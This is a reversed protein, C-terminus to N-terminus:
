KDIYSYKKLITSIKRLNLKNYYCNPKFYKIPKIIIKDKCKYMNFDTENENTKLHSTSIDKENIENNHSSNTTSLFTHNFNKNSKINKRLSITIRNKEKNKSKDFTEGIISRQSKMFSGLKRNSKTSCTRINIFENYKNNIKPIKCFNKTYNFLDKMQRNRYHIVQFPTKFKKKAITSTLTTQIKINRSTEQEARKKDNILNSISKPLNKYTVKNLSFLNLYKPSSIYKINELLNLSTKGKLHYKLEVRGKKRNIEDQKNMLISVRFKQLRPTNLEM